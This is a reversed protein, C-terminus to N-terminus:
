NKEELVMEEEQKTTIEVERQAFTLEDIIHKAGSFKDVIFLVYRIDVVITRQLEPEFAIDGSMAEWNGDFAAGILEGNANIVPSGSNGGTIDNSTLFCVPMKDGMGYQGYDTNKYIEKLKEHVVFEENSPDEKEMVGKLYTMMDYHVADAPFYDDVIGYTVRMTSNANPYYNKEPNMERLGAIFLRRAKNLKMDVKEKEVNMKQFAVGFSSFTSLVPDKALVKASPKVLFAEMKELTSFVSKEYVYNAYKVYDSKFKGHILKYIDPHFQKPINKYYEELIIAMKKRDTPMNYDKFHSGLYAKLREIETTADEGAELKQSLMMAMSSLKFIEAAMMTLRYYLNANKYANETYAMYSKEFDNIVNGYKAKTEDNQNMWKVFENEIKKKDDYVKLRKLGKSQGQLYKWYNALGAYKNAYKIRIEDSADMDAKMAGLIKGMVSIMDPNFKELALKVGYSSLYRDTSGPYGWIMAFDGDEVGELSIPLYHKPKLPINDDSFDAPEGNPGTYVRFMSFDGTHRPWMWNDTDGGYKGISSPPAFVLRVDRYTTYVFLFYENGEFMSELSANYYSEKIAEEVLSDIINNINEARETETMDDTVNKLVEGTVDEIRVLFSATKGPNTLEEIREWAVFGNTLYDHEVTSHAQIEGYGCHHNTLLLGEESIIEGTCSGYDLMVIADKLCANNIDYMQEASLKLGLEHMLRYNMENMLFPLWMGEDSRVGLVFLMAFILSLFKTKM